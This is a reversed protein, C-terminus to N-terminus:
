HSAHRLHARAAGEREGRRRRSGEKGQEGEKDGQQRQADGDM